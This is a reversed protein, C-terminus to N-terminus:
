KPGQFVFDHTANGGKITVQATQPQFGQTYEHWAEITYTGDPLGETNIKFTGDEGTVAFFPHKLVTVWAGMWPHVDCKVKFMFEEKDFVYEATTVTAPMAKNFTANTKSLSHVNHLLGDSNKVVFKQGVQVGMVHPHYQCGHQDMVVPQTPVPWQKDPVGTNVYVFVNKLTKNPNLVVTESYVPETHKKMCGQDADMPIPRKPPERGEYKVSGTLTGALSAPGLVLAAAVAAATIISRIRM